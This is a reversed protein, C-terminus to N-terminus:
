HIVTVAASHIQDIDVWSDITEVEDAYEGAVDLAAAIKAQYAAIKDPSVDRKRLAARQQALEVPVRMYVAKVFWGARRAEQMRRVSRPVNTGTGDMVVRRLSPAGARRDALASQFREEVRADAWKYAENSAYLRRLSAKPEHPDYTPHQVMESDLDILRTANRRMSGHYRRDIYASKGAGPLGVMFVMVHPQLQETHRVRRLVNSVATRMGEGADASRRALWALAESEGGFRRTSPALLAARATHVLVVLLAVLRLPPRM